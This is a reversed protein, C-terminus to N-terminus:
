HSLHYDINGLEFGINELKSDISGLGSGMYSKIGSIESRLGGRGGLQENLTNLEHAVNNLEVVAAFMMSLLFVGAIVLGLRILNKFM